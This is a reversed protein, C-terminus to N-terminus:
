ATEKKWEILNDAVGCVIGLVNAYEILKLRIDNFQKRVEKNYVWDVEHETVSKDTPKQKEWDLLLPHWKSLTPRLVRNLIAIALHGFTTDGPNGPTAIQPGYDKLIKRTTAFLSYLSTLAERLLGEDEKLEATTIRTALEVYM